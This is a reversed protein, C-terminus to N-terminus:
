KLAQTVISNSVPMKIWQKRFIYLVIGIVGYFGTVVFFGYYAKGLTEGIWLAIGISLILVFLTVFAIIVLRTILTSLVDASTDIAKLKLLEISTKGYQEAREFLSEVSTSQDEM